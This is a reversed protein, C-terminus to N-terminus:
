LNKWKISCGISPYQKINVELNNAVLKMALFLERKANQIDNKGASDLRGRYKLKLDRDFGFFDPTCVADYAKAIEQTEDFLYPFNFHHKSSFLKMNDYSDDPYAIVDNSNIGVFGVGLKALDNADRSINDAIAQVYPCHNCIFAIVLGNKTMLDSISYHNGDVSLLDFNKATFYHNLAPTELPPM